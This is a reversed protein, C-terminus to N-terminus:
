AIPLASSTNIEVSCTSFIPFTALTLSKGSFETRWTKRRSDVPCNRRPVGPHHFETFLRFGGAFQTTMSGAVDLRIAVTDLLKQPEMM